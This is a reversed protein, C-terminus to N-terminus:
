RYRSPVVGTSWNTNVGWAQSTAGTWSYGCVTTLLNNNDNCDTGLTTAKYGAPISAGYCVTQTGNDYDDNDADIYLTASQWKTNDSPACDGSATVTQTWGAGPSACATQTSTYYGDNDADLYWVDTTNVTVTFSNISVNGNNDTSQFTNTTTGVPFASGSPLGATQTVAPHLLVNWSFLVQGNGSQFDNTNNQSTGSNFSGGGGGFTRNGGAGGSYGGGGGGANLGAHGAGGGGYGGVGGNLPIGGTGMNLFSLGYSAVTNGAGPLQVGNTLFGGGGGAHYTEGGNGNIGGNIITPASSNTVTGGATGTSGYSFNVSGAPLFYFGGGGGAIILPTVKDGNLMQYPSTVDKKVVFTGGGGGAQNANDQGKGGVLIVLETGPSVAINGQMRAGKGGVMSSGDGGGQAGLATINISTVGAPVTFSQLSGTYNFTQSGSIVLSCNDTATPAAYTVVQTCSGSAATTVINAPLTIVPAVADDDAMGNCNEDVGNCTIETAGPKIAANADNCDGGAILGSTKYGAGPSTCQTVPSGTYYGDADADLYWTQLPAFTVSITHNAQVNTFTYSSVAGVSSGNVLVDSVCYGANATISYSQNSGGFVQVAGSPSISGNSGATATITFAETYRAIFIDDNNLASRNQVGANPDFDAIHNFYGAMYVNGVGDTVIANGADDVLGGMQKAYIYNGSNNYKAVFIDAGGISTFNATGAGPDFDVTGRFSGTLYTNGSADFDFSKGEDAGPGGMSKAYMYLGNGDYQALFIDANGASVLNQTGAGPDFDATGNFYGTIIPRGNGELSVANGVDTGTGGMQKAFVYNGGADYKALFIDSLGASTLNATGAGPDFDVTGNFYGTIYANGSGDITLSNGADDSANGMSKAYVYNGSNNYKAIFIDKNAGALYATGAGPDFDIVSGAPSSTFFGTIYLNGSGDLAISSGNDRGTGGIRKAFVYNGSADYKAYFIDDIGASTLNATGAGPDFDVTGNFYGTVYANGSADVAISNCVDNATGGIAKAYIYNGSADYKAFYIDGGGGSTLNATGAGPDFDITGDFYGTIYINGSADRTISTARDSYPSTSYGGLAKAWVYIGTSSYKAVPANNIGSPGILNATGAGPDFDVTGIFYGTIYANGTGDIAISNGIDSSTGGICKAYVYNGSADYKALFIDYSGASSTLNQTGVGPDFDVTGIFYGTIYATGTGDISISSGVDLSTGGISKAYAYNGSADYKALFIDSGGASVLNQTGAGPDFDATGNFSGTIYANGSGDIAISNGIDSNTGGMRKAYVYNGSADYKAFFIDNGGASTLNATGAGPDFDVTGNFSGTIYANGSGDIAIANGVDAGAAGGMQKAYVYNGSADYKALFIDGVGASLETFSVVGAGPDFDVTAQFSGTIYVNGSADVVIANGADSRTGGMAKAYVYNGSADYKAFFIDNGGASTLNATGAGPDFDPTGTFSGAIFANGSIDVAVSYGYDDYLGGISKAYVYNGSADYKALFIDYSGASSTLNAIGVGPDFDATGQFNGTIYVNGSADVAIGNGQLSGGYAQTNNLAKAWNLLLDPTQAQAASLTLLLALTYLHRKM